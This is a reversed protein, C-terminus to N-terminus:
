LINNAIEQQITKQGAGGVGVFVVSDADDGWGREGREDRMACKTMTVIKFM